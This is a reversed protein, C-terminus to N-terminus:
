PLRVGGGVILVNPAHLTAPARDRLTEDQEELGAVITSVVTSASGNAVSLATANGPAQAFVYNLASLGSGDIAYQGAASAATAPTSWTLAGETADALTDGGVLGTVAGSLDGPMQGAWFFATDARYTLTAPTIDATTTATTSFSYNGADAGSAAIGSVSVNKRYRREQRRLQRHRHLEGHRRVARRYQWRSRM